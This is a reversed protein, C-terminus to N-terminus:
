QQNRLGLGGFRRERKSYDDLSKKIEEEDFDPWLVPTFYLESYAAQWPLFNSIRMEGGTRIIIDPDPQGLTYLYKSFMVEDIDEVPIGEKILRRVAYLIEERGGYNFALNLVMRSNEKTIDVASIVKQSLGESLRELSGIYRVKVGREHLAVTEEYIKEELIQFLGEVEAKPRSWNETSFTYLTLYQVQYGMFTDVVMRIKDTGARHGELRALGHKTAWRGNGDMIIAVHTPIGSM